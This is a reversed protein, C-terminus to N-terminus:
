GMTLLALAAEAEADFSEEEGAVDVGDEREPSSLLTGHKQQRLSASVTMFICLALIANAPTSFRLHPALRQLLRNLQEVVQTNFNLTNCYRVYRDLQYAISCHVHNPAHLRDIIIQVVAAIDPCRAAIYSHLHCGNDYGLRLPQCVRPRCRDRLFDFVVEPSEGRRLLKLFYIHGHPCAIVLLGPTFGTFTPYEKSCECTKPIGSRFAPRARRQWRFCPAAYIGRARDEEFTTPVFENGHEIRSALATAVDAAARASRAAEETRRLELDTTELKQTRAGLTAQAGRLDRTAAQSDKAARELADSRGDGPGAVHLLACAARATGLAEAAVRQRETATDAAVQLGALETALASRMQQLTHAHNDSATADARKSSAFQKIASLTMPESGLVRASSVDYLPDGLKVFEDAM